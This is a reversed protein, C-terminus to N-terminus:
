VKTGIILPTSSAYLIPNFLVKAGKIYENEENKERKKERVIERFCFPWLNAGPRGDVYSTFTRPIKDENRPKKNSSYPYQVSKDCGSGM